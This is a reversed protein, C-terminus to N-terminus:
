VFKALSGQDIIWGMGRLAIADDETIGADILADVSCAFIEDTGAYTIGSNSLYKAILNLGLLATCAAFKPLDCDGGMIELFRERNM